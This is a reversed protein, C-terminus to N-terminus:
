VNREVKIDGKVETISKDLVKNAWFAYYVTLACGGIVVIISYLIAITVSNSSFPQIASIEHGVSMLFLNTGLLIFLFVAAFQMIRKRQRRLKQFSDLKEIEDYQM